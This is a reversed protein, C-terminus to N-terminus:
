KPHHKAALLPSKLKDQTYLPDCQAGDLSLANSYSYSKIKNVM